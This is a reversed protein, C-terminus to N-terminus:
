KIAVLVFMASAIAMLAWLGANWKIIKSGDLPPLPLLNLASILASAFLLGRNYFPPLLALLSCLALNVLPGAAAIRGEIRANGGIGEVAVYGPFVLRFPMYPLASLLTLALGPWYLTFTARFGSFHAAFKHALEHPVYALSAIVLATVARQLTYPFIFALAVALAAIILDLLERPHFMAGSTTKTVPSAGPYPTLSANEREIQDPSKAMQLGECEHNEPLHHEVCYVKGCYKCRYPLGEIPRNCYSCNVM